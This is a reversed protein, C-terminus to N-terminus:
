LIMRRILKGGDTAATQFASRTQWGRYVVVNAEASDQCGWLKASRAVVVGIEGRAARPLLTEAVFRRAMQTSPLKAAIRRAEAGKKSRYAVLQLVCFKDAAAALDSGFVREAWRRGPHDVFESQFFLYPSQGLLNKTLSLQQESGEQEYQIDNEGAIGPNLFLLFVRASQVPGLWPMPLLDTKFQGRIQGADDPHINNEATRSWYEVLKAATIANV